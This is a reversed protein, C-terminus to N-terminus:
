CPIRPNRGAVEGPDVEIKMTSRPADIGRRFREAQNVECLIQMQKTGGAQGLNSAITEADRPKTQTFPEPRDIAPRGSKELAKPELETLDRELTSHGEVVSTYSQLYAPDAYHMAETLIGAADHVHHM